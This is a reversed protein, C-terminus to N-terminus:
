EAREMELGMVWGLVSLVMVWLMGRELIWALAGRTEMM